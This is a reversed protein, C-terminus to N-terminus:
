TNINLSAINSALYIAQISATSTTKNDFIDNHDASFRIHLLVQRFRGSLFCFLVFTRFVFPLKIPDFSNSFPRKSFEAIIKVQM